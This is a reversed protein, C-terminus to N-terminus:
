RGILMYIGAITFTSLVIARMMEPMWVFLSELYTGLMQLLEWIFGLGRLQEALFRLLATILKPINAVASILANFGNRVADLINSVNLSIRAFWNSFHDRISELLDKLSTFTVTDSETDVAPNGTVTNTQAEDQTMDYVEQMTGPPVFPLYKREEEQNPIIVSGPLSIAGANWYAYGDAISSDPLAVKELDLAMDTTVTQYTTTDWTFDYLYYGSSEITLAFNQISEGLVTSSSSKGSAPFTVYETNTMSSSTGLQGDFRLYSLAATLFNSAGLAYESSYYFPRTYTTPSSGLTRYGIQTVSQGDAISLSDLEHTGFLSANVIGLPNNFFTSCLIGDENFFIGYMGSTTLSLVLAKSNVGLSKILALLNEPSSRYLRLLSMRAGATNGSYVSTASIDAGSLATVTQLVGTSFLFDRISQVLGEPVFLQKLGNYTYEALHLGEDSIYQTTSRVWAECDSVLQDFVHEQSAKRMVGLAVLITAIAIGPHAMVVGTITATISAAEAQIPSVGVLLSLVLLLCIMRYIITSNM